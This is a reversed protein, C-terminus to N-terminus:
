SRWRAVLAVRGCPRAARDSFFVAGGDTVEEAVHLNTAAVGAAVLQHAAVAKLDILSRDAVDHRVAGPVSRFHAAVEPGVQYSDVSICPGIAAFMTQGSPDLAHAAAAIVGGALGRWGAHIVALRHTEPCVLVVPACDAVLIALAVTDVRTVLADGERFTSPVDADVVHTGHTQHTMVLRDLGVGAASAVRLRNEAVAALEDGVHDGLNLSEYPPQSVGGTRDTMFVDLGVEDLARFQHVTLGNRSESSLRV